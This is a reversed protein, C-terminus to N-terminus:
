DGQELYERLLMHIRKPKLIEGDQEDLSVAISEQLLALIDYGKEKAQLSYQKILTAIDSLHLKKTDKFGGRRCVVKALYDRRQGQGNSKDMGMQDSQYAIYYNGKATFIRFFKKLSQLYYRIVRKSLGLLREYKEYFTDIGLKYVGGNSHTIKMFDLLMFKEKARLTKFKTARFFSRNLNIYGEPNKRDFEENNLISIDYDAKGVQQYTIINQDALSHLTNYFTQKCMGVNECIDKYYIGEVTGTPNQYRAAYLLFDWERNTLNHFQDLLKYKLQM